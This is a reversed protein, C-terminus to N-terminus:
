EDNVEWTVKLSRLARQLHRDVTGESVCMVEAIERNTLDGVYRLAVVTRQRLPLKRLQEWLGHDSADWAPDDDRALREQQMRLLLGAQRWLSRQHDRVRNLAVRRVWGAPDEYTSIQQWRVVLRVFAEQVADAAEEREGGILTLARVLRDYEQAFIAEPCASAHRVNETARAGGVPWDDLSTTECGASFEHGDSIM